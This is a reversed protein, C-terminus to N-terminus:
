RSISLAHHRRHGRGAGAGLLRLPKRRFPQCGHSRNRWSHTQGGRGRVQLNRQQAAGRQPFVEAGQGNGPQHNRGASRARRWLQDAVAELMSSRAHSPVKKYTEFARAAAAIAEHTVAVDALPVTAIVEGTYKNLVDLVQGTEVWQGDILTKYQKTM